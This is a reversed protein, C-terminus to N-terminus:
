MDSDNQVRRVRDARSTLTQSLFEETHTHPHPVSHRRRSVSAHTQTKGAEQQNRATQSLKNEGETNKQIKQQHIFCSREETFLCHFKSVIQGWQSPVPRHRLAVDAVSDTQTGRSAM